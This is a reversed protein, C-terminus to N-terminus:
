SVLPAGPPPPDPLANMPEGDIVVFAGPIQM